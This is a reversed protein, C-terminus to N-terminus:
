ACDKLYMPQKVPLQSGERDIRMQVEQRHVPVAAPATIGLKVRDAGMSVVTIVINDGIVIEQGLKRTLVLM